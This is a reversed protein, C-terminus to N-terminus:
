PTWMLERGNRIADCAEEFTMEVGHNDVYVVMKGSWYYEEVKKGNVIEKREPSMKTRENRTTHYREHGIIEGM